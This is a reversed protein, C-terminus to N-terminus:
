QGDGTALKLAAALARLDGLMLMGAATMSVEFEDPLDPFLRDFETQFEVIPRAADALSPAAAILRANDSPGNSTMFCIRIHPNDAQVIHNNWEMGPRDDPDVAWPGPTWAGSAETQTKSPM